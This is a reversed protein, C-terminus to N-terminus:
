AGVHSLVWDYLRESDHHPGDLNWAFEPHWQVGFIKGPAVETHGLVEIMQDEPAHAWVALKPAIVDIAQHHVSNVTWNSEESFYSAFPANPVATLGHHLQDYAVADRHAISEPRQIEIDQLLTGGFYVNLLQFGRCIAFIPKDKKVAYDILELEFEDRFPDGPWRGDEIPKAGYSQPAVDNGGQMVLLDVQDLMAQWEPKPLHPILIVQIGPRSLYRAMDQEIYALSKAGFVNRSLDPYFFCPSVGVRIMIADKPSLLPKQTM